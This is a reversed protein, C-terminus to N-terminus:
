CSDYPFTSLWIAAWAGLEQAGVSGIEGLIQRQIQDLVDVRRLIVRVREEDSLGSAISDRPAPDTWPDFTEIEEIEAVLLRATLTAIVLDTM